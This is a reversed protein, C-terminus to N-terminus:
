FDKIEKRRRRRMRRGRDRKEVYWVCPGCQGRSFLARIKIM